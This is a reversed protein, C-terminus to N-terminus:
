IGSSFFISLESFQEYFFFFFIKRSMKIHLKVNLTQYSVYATRELDQELSLMVPTFENNNNGVEAEVEKAVYNEHIDSLTKYMRKITRHFQGLVSHPDLDSKKCVDDISLYQLGVGLM